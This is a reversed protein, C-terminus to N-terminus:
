LNNWNFFWKDYHITGILNEFCPQMNPFYVKDVHTGQFIFLPYKSVFSVTITDLYFSIKLTSKFFADHKTAYDRPMDRSALHFYENLKQKEKKLSLNNFFSVNNLDNFSRILFLRYINSRIELIYETEHSFYHNTCYYHIIAIQHSFDRTIGSRAWLDVEPARSCKCSKEEFWM